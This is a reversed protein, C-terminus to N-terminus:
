RSTGWVQPRLRRDLWHMPAFLAAARSYGRQRLESRGWRMVYVPRPPGIVRRVPEVMAYYAVVYLAAIVFGATIARARVRHTPKETM